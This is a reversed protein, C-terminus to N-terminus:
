GIRDDKKNRKRKEESSDLFGRIYARTLEEMTVDYRKTMIEFIDFPMSIEDGQYQAGMYRGLGFVEIKLEIPELDKSWMGSIRKMGKRARYNHLRRLIIAVCYGLLLLIPLLIWLSRLMRVNYFDRWGGKEEGILIAMVWYVVLYAWYPVQILATDFHEQVMIVESIRDANIIPFELFRPRVLYTMSGPLEAAMNVEIQHGSNFM